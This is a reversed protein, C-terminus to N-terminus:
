KKGRKNLFLIILFMGALTYMISKSSTQGVTKEASKDVNTGEESDLFIDDSNTVEDISLNGVQSPYVDKVGFYSKYQNM